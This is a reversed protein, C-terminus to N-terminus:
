EGSLLIPSTPALAGAEDELTVGFGGAQVNPRLPPFVVAANGLLDPTFMGAPIPAAGGAPLLWLEYAKGPPPAPINSATFVLQGSTASYIAHGEPSKTQQPKERLTVHQAHVGHLFNKLETLESTERELRNLEPQLRRVQHIHNLDDFITFVLAAALAGSLIALPLPTALWHQVSRAAIYLGSKNRMQVFKSEQTTNTTLRKLFRERAGEPLTSMPQAAAYAALELQKRALEERCTNCMSIHATMTSLQSEKFGGMAYQILDDEPIHFAEPM